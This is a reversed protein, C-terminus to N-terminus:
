SAAERANRTVTVAVGRRRDRGQFGNRGQLLAILLWIRCEGPAYEVQALGAVEDIYADTVGPIRKLTEELQIACVRDVRLGTVALMQNDHM